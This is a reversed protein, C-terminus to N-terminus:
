RLAKFSNADRCQQSLGDSPVFHDGRVGSFSTQAQGHHVFRDAKNGETIVTYSQSRMAQYKNDAAGISSLYDNLQRDSLRLCKDLKVGWRM